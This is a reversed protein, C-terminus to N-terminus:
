WGGAPAEDLRKSSRRTGDASRRRKSSSAARRLCEDEFQAESLQAALSISLEARERDGLAFTRPRSEELHECLGHIFTATM